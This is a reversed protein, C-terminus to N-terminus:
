DLILFYKWNHKINVPSNSLGQIFQLLRDSNGGVPSLWRKLQELEEYISIFSYCLELMQGYKIQIDHIWLWTATRESLLSFFVTDALLETDRQM